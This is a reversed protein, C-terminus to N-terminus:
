FVSFAWPTPIALTMLAAGLLAMNKLFNVMEAMKQQPDQVAWFNHMKFSVPVFFLALALVALEVYVGLLIGLGGLILLLGTVMVAFKPSPVNKSATYQAMMGVKMFHNIGSMVFFGGFLIRGILFFIDM